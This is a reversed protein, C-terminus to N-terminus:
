KSKVKVNDEVIFTIPLSYKVGVAKGQQEGPQMKPLSKIVREAEKELVKHPGRTKVHTIKGKSSIMFMVFIRKKGPSLGLNEALKINFNEAVFLQIKKSLCRGQERNDMINECGPYVPVKEIISFPVEGKEISKKINIFTKKQQSVYESYTRKVM